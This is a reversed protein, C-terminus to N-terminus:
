RATNLRYPVVSQVSRHRFADHFIRIRFFCRIIKCDVCFSSVEGEEMEAEETGAQGAIPDVMMETAMM